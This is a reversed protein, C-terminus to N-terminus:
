CFYILEVHSLKGNVFTFKYADDGVAIMYAYQNNLISTIYGKGIQLFEKETTQDSVITNNIKFGAGNIIDLKRLMYTRAVDHGICEATYFIVNSEYDGLGCDDLNAYSDKVKGLNKELTALSFGNRPEVESNLTFGFLKKNKMKAIKDFQDIPVAKLVDIQLKTLSLIETLNNKQAYDVYTTLGQIAEQDTGNWGLELIREAYKKQDEVTTAKKYATILQNMIPRKGTYKVPIYGKLDNYTVAVWAESDYPYYDIPVATGNLLVTIVNSTSNPYERMKLGAVTTFLHPSGYYDDADIVPAPSEEVEDASNLNNKVNQVDIIYLPTSYDVEAKLLTKNVKILNSLHAGRTFFGVEKTAKADEYAKTPTAIYKTTQGLSSLSILCCLIGFLRKM